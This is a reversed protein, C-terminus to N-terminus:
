MHFKRIITEKIDKICLILCLIFSFISLSSGIISLTKNQVIGETIFIVPLMSFLVIVLQYFAYKMYKKYSTITLVLMTINAIIIMIPIAINISWGKMGLKYDIYSVLLSLAILQLLVHGAININKKISYLVVIWIYIIGSNALAAWPIYPTVLHNILLLLLAISISVIGLSRILKESKKAKIKEPYIM